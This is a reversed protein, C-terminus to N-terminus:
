LLVPITSFEILWKLDTWNLSMDFLSLSYQAFGSTGITGNEMLAFLNKEFNEM